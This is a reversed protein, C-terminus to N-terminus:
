KPKFSVNLQPHDIYTHKLQKIRASVQQKSPLSHTTDNNSDYKVLNTLCGNAYKELEELAAPNSPKNTEYQNITNLCTVAAEHTEIPPSYKHDNYMNMGAISGFIAAGIALIAVFEKPKTQTVTNIDGDGGDDM